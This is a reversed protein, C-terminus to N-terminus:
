GRSEHEAVRPGHPFLLSATHSAPNHCGRLTAAVRASLLAAFCRPLSTVLYRYLSTIFLPRAGHAEQRQAPQNMM